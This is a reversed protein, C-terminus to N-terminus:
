PNGERFVGAAGCGRLPRWEEGADLVPHQRQAKGGGLAASAPNGAVAAWRSLLMAIVRQKKTGWSLNWFVLAESLLGPVSLERHALREPRLGQALRAAM